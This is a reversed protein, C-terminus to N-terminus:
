CSCKEKMEDGPQFMVDVHSSPFSPHLPWPAWVPSSSPRSPLAFQAEWSPAETNPFKGSKEKKKSGNYVHLCVLWIEGEHLILRVM